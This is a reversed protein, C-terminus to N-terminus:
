ITKFDKYNFLIDDLWLSVNRVEPTETYAKGRKKMSIFSKIRTSVDQSATYIYHTPLNSYKNKIEEYIGKRIKIHSKIKNKLSYNLAISLIEKYAKITNEIIKIKRKTLPKSKLVVIKSLKITKPM